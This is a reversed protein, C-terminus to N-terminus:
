TTVVTNAAMYLKSDNRKRNTVLKILYKGNWNIYIYIYIYIYLLFKINWFM